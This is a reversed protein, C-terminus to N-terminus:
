QRSAPVVHVLEDHGDISLRWGGILGGRAITVRPHSDDHVYVTEDDRVEWRQGNELTLITGQQWGNLPGAIRSVIDEDSPASAPLPAAMATTSSTGAAIGPGTAGHARLWENLGRLQESSLHDLGYDKFEKYSMREELSSLEAGAAWASLSLCALLLALRKKPLFSAHM